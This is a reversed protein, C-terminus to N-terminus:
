TNHTMLSFFHYLSVVEKLCEMIKVEIRKLGADIATISKKISKFLLDAMQNQGADRLENISSILRKQTVVMRERLTAFQKIKELVVGSPKWLRVL